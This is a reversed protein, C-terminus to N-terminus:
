GKKHLTLDCDAQALLGLAAHFLTLCGHSVFQSGSFQRLFVISLKRKESQNIKYGSLETPQLYEILM